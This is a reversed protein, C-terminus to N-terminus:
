LISVAALLIWWEETFVGRMELLDSATQVYYIHCLFGTALLNLNEFWGKPVPLAIILIFVKSQIRNLSYVNFFMFTQLRSQSEYINVIWTKKESPPYTKKYQWSCPM